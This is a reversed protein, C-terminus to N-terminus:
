LMALSHKRCFSITVHEDLIPIPGTQLDQLIETEPRGFKKSILTALTIKQTNTLATNDGQLFRKGPFNPNGVYLPWLLPFSTKGFTARWIDARPDSDNISAECGCTM